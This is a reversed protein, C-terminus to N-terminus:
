NRSVLSVVTHAIRVATQARKIGEPRGEIVAITVAHEADGEIKKAGTYGPLGTLVARPNIPRGDCGKPLFKEKM